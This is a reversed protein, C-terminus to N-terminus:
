TCGFYYEMQHHTARMLKTAIGLKRHTRLVSLSTIHAEVEGPKKNKAEDDDEMKAM